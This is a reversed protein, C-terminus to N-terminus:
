KEDLQHLIMMCNAVVGYFHGNEQEDSYNGKMIEMFHRTLAQKLKEVNMPKKWNYPEYKGKNMAMRKALGEIFEWSLEYDLKGEIEKTGEM